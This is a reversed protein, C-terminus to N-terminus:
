SGGTQCVSLRVSPRAIAYNYRALCLAIHHRANFFSPARSLAHQM